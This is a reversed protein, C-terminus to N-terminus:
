KLKRNLSWDYPLYKIIVKNKNKLISKKADENVFKAIYNLVSKTDNGFDSAYWKFIQSLSITNSPADLIVGKRNMFSKASLDLQEDIHSEDYFEIPPCSSSACVLAFHIRPDKESLALSKKKSLSGSKLKRLIEHEIDDPTFFVGGINYGIRNFFNNVEKVSVKIDFHIVGHIILINYINIWFAKKEQDTKLSYPDFGNLSKTLTLYEGFGKSAKLQDYAVQGELVDFFAGRLQTLSRKLEVAIEKNTKSAVKDSKNLTVKLPILKNLRSRLSFGNKNKALKGQISLIAIASNIYGIHSFAQPFNGLAKSTKFDYEEAFLGLHNAAQSTKLLLEKAQDIKGSLALSEILWFNCLLFGGEEGELGDEAIYRLLFGDKMLQKQCATITGQIRKDNLPLFGMLGVLLLSADLDKAGYRQVFSNLQSDYGKELVETKIAEKEQEWKELPAEFGYRRAIKIGRDLAVWCMVKSYVFHFPGNRVEWIGSDPTRWDRIALNCVDRFFPWLTEDIKGAYDSLRLATDMVEGYIDWQKQDFAGNGVRVPYSNMYGKLHDLIDENLLNEGELSYMIQLQDSGYRNYTQHLWRIFSDAETIHGLAFMAKLTFSADRIWTFRYDWNRAGGLSEPLSTTAAAAIAGSPQFTLLKLTLVSRKLMPAYDGVGLHRSDISRNLWNNWFSSTAKLTVQASDLCPKEGYSFSFFADKGNELSFDIIVGAGKDEKIDYKDLSLSLVFRQDELRVVFVDNEKKIQPIQRAYGPRPFFNLRFKMSGSVVRLIRHIVHESKDSLETASVPMFDILESKSSQSTFTSVLINTDKLYRQESKFDDLPQISFYGGKEDDLLAAFVTPSDIHPLSCYDISGDFSVLAVGHMDGILGYDSISKYMTNYKGEKKTM